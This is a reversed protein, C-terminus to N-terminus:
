LCYCNQVKFVDQSEIFFKRQNDNQRIQEPNKNHSIDTQCIFCFFDNEKM